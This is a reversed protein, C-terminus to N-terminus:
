PVDAVLDLLTHTGAAQLPGGLIITTSVSKLQPFHAAWEDMSEAFNVGHAHFCARRVVNSLSTGAAECIAAVNKLMYNMQQRAPQGYYPFSPHRVMAEPVKGSADVPLRQSLFLLNQYTAAVRRSLPFALGHRLQADDVLCQPFGDLTPLFIYCEVHSARGLAVRQVPRM